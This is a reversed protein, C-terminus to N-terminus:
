TFARWANPLDPHRDAEVWSGSTCRHSSLREHHAGPPEVDPQGGRSPRSRLFSGERARSTAPGRSRHSSWMSALPCVGLVRSSFLRIAATILWSPAFSRAADGEPMEGRGDHQDSADINRRDGSSETGGSRIQCQLGIRTDHVGSVASGSCNEALAKGVSM